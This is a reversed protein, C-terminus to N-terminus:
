VKNKQEIWKSMYKTAQLSQHQLVQGIFHQQRHVQITDKLLVVRKIFAESIKASHYRERVVLFGEKSRKQWTDKDKHIAVSLAAFAIADDSVSAVDLYTGYMGEAGISTTVAPTGYLMADLLKGKLGAGFRLPALCVRAQQMVEKVSPAWGMILFGDKENHLEKIQQPAYNGYVYLKAEPLKKKIIPWIEKRLFLISDLNPAHLFNGISIFDARAVFSPLTEHDPIESIMFPLYYLIEEAIKFTELLLKVEVESIILSLDCRLISALERKTDETYLNANQAAGTNKFAHQRAKRLFHLDETDLIRVANPCVEAVRWGFQEETIFRDFLVIEPDLQAIFDNFSSSNLTVIEPSVGITELAVSKASKSATSAYTIYYEEKQFLAILQMMRTGAATTTPEPFTHGIILLKKM